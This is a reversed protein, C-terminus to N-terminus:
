RVGNRIPDDLIMLPPRKKAPTPLRAIEDAIILVRKCEEVTKLNATHYEYGLKKSLNKYLAKRTYKGHKWLPDIKAHIAKRYNKIQQSAIVGLPKTGGGQKHCGVFNDCGDCRWFKLGNLDKRHPYVEAGNTIRAKVQKSCKCCYITMTKTM